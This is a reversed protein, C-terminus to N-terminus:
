RQWLIGRRDDSAPQYADSFSSIANTFDELTMDDTVEFADIGCRQMFQLQDYLVEGCARIEGTFGLERLIRASSFGRGNRYIPFEIAVMTVMDLYPALTYVDEGAKEGARLIVALPQNRNKLNNAEAELQSLSIICPADALAADDDVLTWENEVFAWKTDSSNAKIIKTPM